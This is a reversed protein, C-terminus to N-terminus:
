SKQAKAKEALREKTRERREKKKDKGHPYGVGSKPARWGKDRQM